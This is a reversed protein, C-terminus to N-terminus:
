STGYELLHSPQDGEVFDPLTCSSSAALCLICRLPYQTGSM